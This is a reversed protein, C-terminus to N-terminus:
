RETTSKRCVFDRDCNKKPHTHKVCCENSEFIRRKTSFDVFYYGNLPASKDGNVSTATFRNSDVKETHIKFEFRLPNIEDLQIGNFLQSKYGTKALRILLDKERSVKSEPVSVSIAVKVWKDNAISM